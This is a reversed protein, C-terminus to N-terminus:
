TVKDTLLRLAEDREKLAAEHAQMMSQMAHQQSAREKCVLDIHM